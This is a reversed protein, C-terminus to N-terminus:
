PEEEQAEVDAKAGALEKKAAGLKWNWFDRLLEDPETALMNEAESVAREWRPHLEGPTGSWFEVPGFSLRFHLSERIGTDNVGEVARCLALAIMRWSDSGLGYFAAFRAWLFMSAADEAAADAPIQAVVLAPAMSGTPDVDRVYEPLHYAVASDETALGLLARMADKDRQPDLRNPAMLSTPKNRHPLVDFKKRDEQSQLSSSLAMRERVLGVLWGLPLPSSLGKVMQELDWWAMTDLDDLDEVRVLLHLFFEVEEDAFRTRGEVMASKAHYASQLLASFCDTGEGLPVTGWVKSVEEKWRGWCVPQFVGLLHFYSRRGGAAAFLGAHELLVGMDGATLPGAFAPHPNGYVAFILDRRRDDSSAEKLFRRVTTAAEKSQKGLSDLEYQRLSKLWGGLLSSALYFAGESGGSVAVLAGELLERDPYGRLGLGRGVPHLAIQRAPEPGFYVEARSVFQRVEAWDRAKVLKTVLDDETHAKTAYDELGKFEAALGSALFLAEAKKALAAREGDNDFRVHWDWIKRAARLEEIPLAPHGGLYDVVWRINEKLEDGLDKGPGMGDLRARNTESNAHHLLRWALLRKSRHVGDAELVQRLSLILFARLKDEASGPTVAGRSFTLKWKDPRGLRERTVALLPTFLAEMERGDIRDLEGTAKLIRLKREVERRAAPTVDGGVTNRDEKTLLRGLLAEAGSGSRREREAQTPELQAEWRVVRLMESLIGRLEGNNAYPALCFLHWGVRRAVEFHRFVYDGLGEGLAPHDRGPCALLTSLIATADGVRAYGIKAVLDQVRHQDWADGEGALRKLGLMAMGLLDVPTRDHKLVWEVRALSEAAKEVAPFGPKLLEALVDEFEASPKRAAEGGPSTLWDLLVYDRVADPAVVLSRTRGPWERALGAGLLTELSRSVGSRPEFGVGAALYQLVERDDVRLPQLLALWRTLERTKQADSTAAIREWISEVYRRAVERPSVARVQDCTSGPLGSAVVMWMPYRNSVAVIWRARQSGEAAGVDWGLRKVLANALTRAPRAALRTVPLPPALCRRDTRSFERVIDQRWSGAAVLIKRKAEPATSLHQDILREVARLSPPEDVLLLLPPAYSLFEDSSELEGANVWRVQWGEHEAILGAELLLRTKGVGGPGHLLLVAHESRIFDAIRSKEEERGVLDLDLGALFVENDRLVDQAEKLSWLVHTRGEFYARILEPCNLIEQEVRERTWLEVDIGITRFAPVVDGEWKM